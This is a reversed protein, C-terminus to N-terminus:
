KAAFTLAITAMATGAQSIWQDHDYPFGSQFYPQFSFARTVVHWTGDRQQSRLLYDVGRRYVPDSVPVGSERLAWLAEGTAYADTPLNDTQGWGGDARQKAILEQVRDPPAKRGAWAIGLIQMTRDEMTRPEANELWVAARAIRDDFEEKRGPIAYLRLARIGKATHSFGGDELPPRAAGYNPWDGEKRQMAAVHHVLSDIALTPAVGSAALQMLSFEQSDVGAAPDQVQFLQQEIGGRLVATAQAERAELQYDAPIALPKAASVALGNLHQAHCSLCGGTALFKTAPPQSFALAKTVAERATRDQEAALSSAAPKSASLGFLPLIAPDQYRQVWDIAPERAAGKALLLEVIRPNAHDTAVAFVLPTADRVDKANIDAGAKVLAEVAEYNAQGAALQLPTLHGLAIPGNKVIEATDGSKVNVAAGHELLLKVLAANRDGNGAADMLATNGGEDVANVDAGKALLLRVVEINNSSAAQELVSM